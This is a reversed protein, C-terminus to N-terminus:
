HQREFGKGQLEEVPQAGSARIVAEARAIYEPHALSQPPVCLGTLEMLFYGFPERPFISSYQDEGDEAFPDYIMLRAAGLGCHQVSVNYIPEIHELISGDKEYTFYIHTKKETSM